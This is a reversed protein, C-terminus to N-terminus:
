TSLAGELKVKLTELSPADVMGRSLRHWLKM